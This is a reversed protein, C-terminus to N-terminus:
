PLCFPAKSAGALKHSMQQRNGSTNNNKNLPFSEDVRKKEKQFYFLECIDSVLFQSAKLFDFKFLCVSIKNGLSPSNVREVKRNLIRKKRQFTFVVCLTIRVLDGDDPEPQDALGLRDNGEREEEVM